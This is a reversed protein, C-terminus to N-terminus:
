SRIIPICVNAHWGVNNRLLHFKGGYIYGNFILNFDEWADVMTTCAGMISSSTVCLDAMSLNWQDYIGVYGSCVMLLLPSLPARPDGNCM